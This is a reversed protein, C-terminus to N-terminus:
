AKRKRGRKGASPLRRQRDQEMEDRHRAIVARDEAPMTASTLEVAAVPLLTVGRERLFREIQEQEDRTLPRRRPALASTFPISHRATTPAATERM